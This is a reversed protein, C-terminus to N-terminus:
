SSIYYRGIISVLQEVADDLLDNVIIHRYQHSLAMELAANKLRKAITEPSDAARDLLRIRLEDLSPPMIFMTVAQPYRKLIQRTGQVDIDLLVNGGQGLVHDLFVASTGYHNDHVKAWEAWQSNRIGCEFEDESIFHYDAGQQEGPRPSRTTYSVSYVMDTFRERVYHCLTTKGAGSPASIIFLAGKDVQPNIM